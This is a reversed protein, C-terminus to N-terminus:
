ASSSMSGDLWGSADKLTDLRTQTEGFDDSGDSSSAPPTPPKKGASLAEGESMAKLLADFRGQENTTDNM